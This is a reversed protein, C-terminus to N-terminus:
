RRSAKGRSRQVSARGSVAAKQSCICPPNRAWCACMASAAAREFAETCGPCIRDHMEVALVDVRGIWGVAHEFLEKEGGEIDIKMYDPVGYASFLAGITTAPVRLSGAHRSGRLKDAVISSSGLDDSCLSLETTGEDGAIADEADVAM